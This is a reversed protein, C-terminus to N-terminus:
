EDNLGEAGARTVLAAFVQISIADSISKVSGDGYVVNVVGPHFSYPNSTGETGFPVANFPATSVLQGNSVNVAVTAGDGVTLGDATTGGFSYDSAPRCWGGGNVRADAATPSTGKTQRGRVFHFPRGASEALAITKSLGDTCQQPTSKSRGTYDKTLFGDGPMVGNNGDDSPSATLSRARPNAGTYKVLAGPTRPDVFTTPSYDTTACFLGNTAFATGSSAVVALTGDTPFPFPATNSQPDADAVVGTTPDSPCELSAIRTGVLIANPVTFGSSTAISSWNRDDAYDYRTALNQEEIYPLCRTVWSLRKIGAPPRTSNPLSKQASLFNQITLGNQKLNNLCSSRRAAERASQVAPLLLGVLTGIIAIVVLLEVLTFGPRRRASSTFSLRELSM